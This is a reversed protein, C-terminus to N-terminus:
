ANLLAQDLDPHLTLTKIEDPTPQKEPDRIPYYIGPPIEVGLPIIGGPALRKLRAIRAKKDKRAQVGRAKLEAKRKNECTSIARTAKRVAEDAEKRRKSILMELAEIGTLSKGKSLSKRSHEKNKLHNTATARAQLIELEHISGRGLYVYTAKIIGTYRKRSLSTLLDQVKGSISEIAAQCEAYSSPPLLEPLKYNNDPETSDDWLEDLEQQREKEAKKDAKKKRKSAYEDIKDKVAKFSPPWM